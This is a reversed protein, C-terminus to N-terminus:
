CSSRAALAGILAAATEVSLGELVVGGPARLTLGTSVAEPEIILPKFAVTPSKAASPGKAVRKPAMNRWYCLNADSVGVREAFEKHTLDSASFAAMIERKLAEPYRRHGRSNLALAAVKAALRDLSMFHRWSQKASLM